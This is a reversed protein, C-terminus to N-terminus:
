VQDGRVAGLRGVDLALGRGVPGPHDLPRGAGARVLLPPEGGRGLPAKVRVPTWLPLHRSTFPAEVADPASIM